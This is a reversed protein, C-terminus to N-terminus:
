FLWAYRSAVRGCERPVSIRPDFESFRLITNAESLMIKQNVCRRKKYIIRERFRAESLIRHAWKIVAICIYKSASIRLRSLYPEDRQGLYGLIHYASATRCARAPMSHSRAIPTEVSRRPGFPRLVAVPM